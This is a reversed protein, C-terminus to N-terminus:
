VPEVHGNGITLAPDARLHATGGLTRGLADLWATHSELFTIVAPHAVLRASGMRGSREARRLLARAAASVPGHQLIECLSARHRPRIIQLFGFGNVATREFPRPLVADFAGAVSLREAKGGLTPLDIGISGALDFLRIANAAQEAGMLALDLPPLHGDVDILTMAPTPSIRLSGGPFAFIGTAATELVETWGSEELRDPAHPSLLTVPFGSAGLQDLLGPGAKHPQGDAAPRAKARKPKGPESLAERTIEITLSGGQTLAKPLPELLAETGDELRIIGQRGPRTIEILQGSCITGHRPGSEEPAIRAEIIRGNEVLAARAEGIGAEYIWEPM